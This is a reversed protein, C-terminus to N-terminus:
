GIPFNPISGRPSVSCAAGPMANRDTGAAGAVDLGMLIVSEDREMELCIAENIADKFMIKRAM